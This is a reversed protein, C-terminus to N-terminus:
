NEGQPALAAAGRQAQARRSNSRGIIKVGPSLLRNEIREGEPSTPYSGDPGEARFRVQLRRGSAGDRRAPGGAPGGPEEGSPKLGRRGPSAREGGETGGDQDM